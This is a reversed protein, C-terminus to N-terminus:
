PTPLDYLWLKLESDLPDGIAYAVVTFYNAESVILDNYEYNLLEKEPDYIDGHESVTVSTRAEYDNVEFYDSYETFHIDTVVRNGVETGGIYVDVSDLSTAAHLFLFKVHGFQPATSVLKQFDLVPEEASGYLVILYHENMEMTLLLSEIQSGTDYNKATFSIEETQTDLLVAGLIRSGYTQEKPVEVGDVEWTLGFPEKLLSIISCYSRIEVPQPEPDKKCSALLLPIFIFFIFLKKM